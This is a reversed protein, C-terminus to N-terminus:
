VVLNLCFCAYLARLAELRAPAQAAVEAITRRGDVLVLAATELPLLNLYPLREAAMPAPYFVRMPDHLAIELRQADYYRRLGEVVIREPALRIQVLEDPAPHPQFEIAAERWAFLALARDAYQSALEEDHDRQTMVGMEVIIEALRKGKKAALKLAQDLEQPALMGKRILIQGIREEPVNSTVVIPRGQAFYLTREVGGSVFRLAGTVNDVLARSVIWAPDMPSSQAASMAVAAPAPAVPKPSEDSVPASRMAEEIDLTLNALSGEAPRTTAAPPKAGAAPKLAGPNAGTAAPFGKSPTSGAPVPPTTLKRLANVLMEPQFTAALVVDAGSTRRLDALGASSSVAGIVIFPMDREGKVKQCLASGDMQPLLQSVVMVDPKVNPIVELAHASSKALVIDFARTGLFKALSAAFGPDGLVLLAKPRSAM